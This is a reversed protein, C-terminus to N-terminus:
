QYLLKQETQSSNNWVENQPQSVATNQGKVTEKEAAAAIRIWDMRPFPGIVWWNLTMIVFGIYTPPEFGWVKDAWIKL